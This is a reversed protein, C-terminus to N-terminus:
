TGLLKELFNPDRSCVLVTTTDGQQWTEALARAEDLGSVSATPFFVEGQGSKVGVLSEDVEQEFGIANNGYAILLACNVINKESVLDSVSGETVTDTDVVLVFRAGVISEASM